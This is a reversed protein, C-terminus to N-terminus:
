ILRECFNKFKVTNEDSIIDFNAMAAGFIYFADNGVVVSLDEVM